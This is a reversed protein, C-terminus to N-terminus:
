IKELFLIDSDKMKGKYTNINKIHQFLNKQDNKSFIKSKFYKKTKLNKIIQDILLEKNDGNDLFNYYKPHNFDEIVYYGGKDLFKFFFNLNHIIDKLLHSGDDIIIKFKKNKFKKKLNKLDLANTTDCYIFQLRRSFYKNKFNRDIGFIFANKFYSHFSALSAGEWTGIELFNFRDTKIKYFKKEYFKGFAHGMKENSKKSYPNKVSSGKDSGFFNFTQNLTKKRRNKFNTDLNIKKKIKFILFKYYWSLKKMLWNHM